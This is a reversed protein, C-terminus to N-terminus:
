SMIIKQAKILWIFTGKDDNQPKTYNTYCCLLICRAIQSDKSTWVAQLAVLLLIHDQSSSQLAATFCESNTMHNVVVWTSCYCSDNTQQLEALAIQQTIPRTIVRRCAAIPRCDPTTSSIQWIDERPRILVFYIEHFIVKIKIQCPDTIFAVMLWTFPGTQNPENTHSKMSVFMITQFTSLTQIGPIGSLNVLCKNFFNLSLVQAISYM